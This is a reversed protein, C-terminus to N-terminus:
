EVRDKRKLGRELLYFLFLVVLVFLLVLLFPSVKWLDPLVVNGLNAIEAIKPYVQQYTLGYILTGVM